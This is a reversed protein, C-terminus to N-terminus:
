IIQTALGIATVRSMTTEVNNQVNQVRVDGGELLGVIRFVIQEQYDTLIRGVPFSIDHNAPFNNGFPAVLDSDGRAESFRMRVSFVQTAKDFLLDCGRDEIRFKFDQTRDYDALLPCSVLRVTDAMSM